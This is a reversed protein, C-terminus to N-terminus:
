KMKSYQLSRTFDYLNQKTPKWDTIIMNIIDTTNILRGWTERNHVSNRWAEGEIILQEPHDNASVTILIAVHVEVVVNAAKHPQIGHTTLKLLRGLKQNCWVSNTECPQKMQLTQHLSVRSWHSFFCCSQTCNWWSCVMFLQGPM